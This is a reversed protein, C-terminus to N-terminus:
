SKKITLRKGKIKNEHHLKWYEMLKNYVENVGLNKKFLMDYVESSNEHLQAFKVMKKAVADIPKNGARLKPDFEISLEKFACDPVKINGIFFTSNLNHAAPKEIRIVNTDGISPLEYTLNLASFSKQDILKDNIYINVSGVTNSLSFTFTTNKKNDIYFEVYAAEKRIYKPNNKIIGKSADIIMTDNTDLNNPVHCKGTTIKSELIDYEYSIIYQSNQIVASEGYWRILRLVRFAEHLEELPFYNIMWAYMYELMQNVSQQMTMTSFEFMKTEWIRYYKLFCVRMIETKIGYYNEWKIASADYYKAIDDFHGKSPHRIPLKAIFTTDDIVKVPNRPQMAEKDFILDEMNEYHIDEEPLLLEDIGYAHELPDPTEYVWAWNGFDDPRLALKNNIRQIWESQQYIDMDKLTRETFVIDEIWGRINPSKTIMSNYDIVIGYKEKEAMDSDKFINIDKNEKDMYLGYSYYGLVPSKNLWEHKFDYIDKASRNTWVTNDPIFSEKDKKFTFEQIEINVDVPLRSFWAERFNDTRKQEKDAFLIGNAVDIKVKSKILWENQIDIYCQFASKDIFIEEDDTFVPKPIVSSWMNRDILDNSEKLQKKVLLDTHKGSYYNIKSVPIIKTAMNLDHVKKAAFLSYNMDDIFRFDIGGYDEEKQRICDMDLMKRFIVIEKPLKYTNQNDMLIKFDGPQKEAWYHLLNLYMDKPIKHFCTATDKIKFDKGVKQFLTSDDLVKFDKGDKFGSVINNNISFDKPLHRVLLEKQTPMLMVRDKIVHTGINSSNTKRRSKKGSVNEKTTYVEKKDKNYSVIEYPLYGNVGVKLGSDMFDPIFGHVKNKWGIYEHYPVDTSKGGNNGQLDQTVLGYKIEQIGFTDINFFYGVKGELKISYFIKNMDYMTKTGQHAMLDPFVNLFYQIITKDRFIKQANITSLKNLIYIPRACIKMMNKSAVIQKKTTFINEYWNLVKNIKAFWQERIDATIEKSSSVTENIIVNYSNEKWASVMENLSPNYLRRDGGHVQYIINGIPDGIWASIDMLIRMDITDPTTMIDKLIRFDPKDKFMLSFDWYKMCIDPRSNIIKQVSNDKYIKMHNVNDNIFVNQYYISIIEEDTTMMATDNISLYFDRCLVKLYEEYTPRQNQKIVDTQCERTEFNPPVKIFSDQKVDRTDYPLPMVTFLDRLNSLGAAIKTIGVPSNFISADSLVACRQYALGYKTTKDGTYKFANIRLPKPKVMYRFSLKGM